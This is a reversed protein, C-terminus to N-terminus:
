RSDTLHTLILDLERVHIELRQVIVSITNLLAMKTEPYEVEEILGMVQTLTSDAYPIFDEATTEFADVARSLQRGASVRVVQDNLPDDKNLLFQFVQFYIPRCGNSEEITSWQGVLIAIRRRLIKYQPNQIQIEPVLHSLLLNKFDLKKDLYPAALGIACYVSEKQLMSSFDPVILWNTSARVCHDIDLKGTVTSVMKLLEPITTEKFHMTLDLLLKEACPRTAFEFDESGLEERKEWEDPEEEWEVLDKPQFLLIELVMHNVLELVASDTFITKRLRIVADADQSKEEPTRYRMGRGPMAIMKICARLLLLAQHGLKDVLSKKSEDFNQVNPMVEVIAPYNSGCAYQQGLLSVLQWHMRVVEFTPDQLLTFDTPNNKAIHVHLKTIQRLNKHVLITVPDNEDKFLHSSLVIQLISQFEPLSHDWFQKVTDNSRIRDLLLILRRITKITLLSQELSAELMPMTSPDSVVEQFISREFSSFYVAGLVRLLEEAFSRLKARGPGIRNQAVEKVINFLLLLARRLQFPYVNQFEPGSFQRIAKVLDSVVDPWKTPFDFRAIKAVVLAVLDALRRDSEQLGSTLIRPRLEDKHKELIMAASGRRWHKEIGNKLQIVANFRIDYPVNRDAFIAQLKPYYDERSQWEELQQKAGILQHNNSSLGKELTERLLTETLPNSDAPLEAIGEVEM